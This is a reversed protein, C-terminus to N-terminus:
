KLNNKIILKVEARRNAARGGATNNAAAPDQEGFGTPNLLRRIPVNKERVLYDVVAAARQDSLKNNHQESGTDDTYGKVEILYGDQKMAFDALGDLSQKDADSLISKNVDFYAVTTQVMDYKDLNDFKAHISELSDRARLEIAALSDATAAQLAQLARQQASISDSNAGVALTLGVTGAAIQQAVRLASSHFSIKDAILNGRDGGNGKVEVILGPLLSSVDREKKETKFLGSPSSIRTDATLTVVDIHGDEDRITMDDGNRGTILGKIKAEEGSTFSRPATVQTVPLQQPTQATLRAAFAAFALVLLTSLVFLVSSARVRDGKDETWM